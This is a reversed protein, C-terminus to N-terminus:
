TKKVKKLAAQIKKDLEKTDKSEPVKKLAGQAHSLMVEMKQPEDLKDNTYLQSATYLSDTMAQLITPKAVKADPSKLLQETRAPDSAAGVAKCAALLVGREIARAEATEAEAQPVLIGAAVRDLQQVDAASGKPMGFAVPVTDGPLKDLEPFTEAFHLAQRNALSRYVRVQRRFPEPDKRNMRAGAAYHDALDTYAATLGSSVVMSWSLARATYENQTALIQDLHELTKDYDAAAFTQAAAQWYYAPSGKAPGSPASSCSILTGLALAVALIRASQNWSM